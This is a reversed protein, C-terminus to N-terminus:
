GCKFLQDLGLSKIKNKINEGVNVLKIEVGEKLLTKLVYILKAMVTNSIFHVNKFDFYQIGGYFVGSLEESPYEKSSQFVDNSKINYLVKGMMPVIRGAPEKNSIGKDISGSNSEEEGSTQNPSTIKVEETKGSNDKM